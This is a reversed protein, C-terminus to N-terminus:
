IYDINDLRKLKIPFYGFGEVFLGSSVKDTLKDIIEPTTDIILADHILFIPVIKQRDWNFQDLLWSFGLLAADVATSQVYHNYILSDRAQNSFVPRGYFNYMFGSAQLETKLDEVLKEFNLEARIKKLVNSAKINNPLMRSLTRSGAGYMASLVATKCQDRNLGGEFIDKAFYQYIDEPVQDDQKALQMAVRPELSTFDVEIIQGDKWRSTLATRLEKPATLIQPGSEITMRGTITKTTTYLTPSLYGETDVSLTKLVGKNKITPKVIAMAKKNVRAPQMGALLKYHNLFVTGYNHKEILSLIRVGEAVFDNLLRQFEDRDYFYSLHAQHPSIGCADLSKFLPKNQFFFDDEQVM